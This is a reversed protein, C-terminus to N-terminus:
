GQELCLKLPQIDRWLAAKLAPKAFLEDISHSLLRPQGTESFLCGRNESFSEFNPLLYRGTDEGMLLVFSVTHKSKQGSLFAQSAQRAASEGQDFGPSRLMPWNFFTVTPEDLHNAGIASLMHKLFVLHQSTLPDAGKTPVQTVVMCTGSFIISALRFEPNKEAASSVPAPKEAELPVQPQPDDTLASKQEDTAVVAPATSTEESRGSDDVFASEAQCPQDVFSASDSDSDPAIEVAPKAGPLSDRLQWVQIGMANLYQHRRAQM